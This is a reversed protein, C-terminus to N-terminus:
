ERKKVREEKSERKAGEESKGLRKKKIWLLAKIAARKVAPLLM